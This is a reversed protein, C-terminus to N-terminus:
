TSHTFAVVFIVCAFIAAYFILASETRDGHKPTWVVHETRFKVIQTTAIFPCFYAPFSSSELEPRTAGGGRNLAMKLELPEDWSYFPWFASLIISTSFTASMQCGVHRQLPRILSRQTFSARAPEDSERASMWCYPWVSRCAGRQHQHLAKPPGSWESRVVNASYNDVRGYM